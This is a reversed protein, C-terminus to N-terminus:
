GEQYTINFVAQYRYRKTTTDTFNYDSNCSCRFVNVVSDRMTAMAAKVAENLAAAAYLTPGISQVALTAEQLGDGGGSGTKEIVVYRPPAQRPVEMSVPVDLRGSLYDLVTIEIM